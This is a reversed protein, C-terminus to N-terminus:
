EGQKNDQLAQKWAAVFKKIFRGLICPWEMVWVCILALPGLIYSAVVFAIGNPGTRKFDMRVAWAGCLLWGFVFTLIKWIM